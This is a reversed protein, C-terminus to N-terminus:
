QRLKGSSIQSLLEQAFLDIRDLGNFAKAM